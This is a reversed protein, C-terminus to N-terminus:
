LFRVFKEYSNKKSNRILFLFNPGIIENLTFFGKLLNIQLENIINNLCFVLFVDKEIDMFPIFINIELVVM